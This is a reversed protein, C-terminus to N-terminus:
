EIPSSPIQSEWTLNLSTTFPHPAVSKPSIIETISQSVISKLTNQFASNDQMRCPLLTGCNSKSTIWNATMQIFENNKVLSDAINEIFNTDTTLTAIEEKRTDKDWGAKLAVMAIFGMYCIAKFAYITYVYDEDIGPKNTINFYSAVKDYCKDIFSKGYM